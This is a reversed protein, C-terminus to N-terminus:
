ELVAKIRRVGASSAEEKTIKFKGLEGTAAAHPGGCIESSFDYISYVKVKEGYKDGFVGIAGSKQAEELTMEACKVPINKEIAENVLKEVKEIEDPSMKQSHSFDLRLREGTINSGKQQVDKGLVKRLAALLLHTATHLRAAKDGADALGGKFMGASVIRSLEQHKKFEEHFDEEDVAMSHERAIEKTLELPFGFTSFLYFAKEGSITEASRSEAIIEKIKKLGKELTERFKVEEQNLEETIKGNEKALEPYTEKYESIVVEAIKAAFNNEIGLIKGQRVARRILRRLIYGREVNSPVVGDAIMFTATRLHDSIIRMAKQNEEEKYERTSIEEIKRILPQFIDTEFVNEKGTLTVLTRELGMGTDVNQQALKEFTGDAKKNYEMFVDNWIEVLRPGNLEEFKGEVAGDEPSIDYFMESDPGCPGTEGAPGWWNDDKGLPVIRKEYNVIKDEAVKAEIGAKRFQEQWINISEQDLPADDDGEFVTVYLRRPDLGLWKESTLFEFSWEIAEKKFYDGLSWNGMMEFFTLHRNDGVDDIDPTRVCKQVNALRTGLPHKEGMLFPVLPHMGATTFLVTPDNEPVLPASPIIAHGKEKFFDLYKQRLENATMFF